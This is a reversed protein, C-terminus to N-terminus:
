DDDQDSHKSEHKSDQKDSHNKHNMAKICQGQNKFTPNTMTKWKGDKCDNKKDKDGDHGTKTPYITTADGTLVINEATVVKGNALTVTAVVRTAPMTQGYQKARVNTWYGDTVYNFSGSVDFPSSIQNGTITAGIKSTGTNTQLLTTGSYLKVVVSQAGAFTADTLGFGASYGKLIGLGTDYNVVGFDEASLAGNLAHGSTTSWIGTRTGTYNDDWTGSLTGNSAITGTMHMITGPAGTDYVITMNVQNGVVSGSTVHWTYTQPGTSPFGGFGTLVGTSSQTLMMRHANPSGLLDYSVVYNGSVDWTPSTAALATLPAFPVALLATLALGNLLKQM